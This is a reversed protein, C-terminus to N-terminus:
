RRRSTITLAAMAAVAALLQTSPEPLFAPATLVSGTGSGSTNGFGARWINYDMPDVSNNADGDGESFTAPSKGNNNRWNVYDAADCVGNNNYDCSLSPPTGGASAVCLSVLVLAVAPPAARRRAVAAFSSGVLIRAM